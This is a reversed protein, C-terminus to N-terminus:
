EYKWEDFLEKLNENERLRRLSKEEKSAKDERVISNKRESSPLMHSRSHSEWYNNVICPESQRAIEGEKPSKNESMKSIINNREEQESLPNLRSRSQPPESRCNIICPESRNRRMPIGSPPRPQQKSIMKEEVKKKWKKVAERIEQSVKKRCQDKDLEEWYAPQGFAGRERSLFRVGEQLLNHTMDNILISKKTKTACHYDPVIEEVRKRLRDNGEHKFTTGGRGLLVDTSLPTISSSSSSSM